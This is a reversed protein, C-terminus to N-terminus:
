NGGAVPRKHEGNTDFISSDTMPGFAELTVKVRSLTRNQWYWGHIGTFPAKYTGRMRDTDGVGYSETLATGGEFPHSHMDFRVPETTQWSFALTEGVRLTYKFEIWEYPGIDFEWHDKRGPAMALTASDDLMLVGTRKAGRQTEASSGAPASMKTLGTARGFGTPDIGFEWPLVFFVLIATLAMVAGACSM